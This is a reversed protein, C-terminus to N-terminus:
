GFLSSANPFTFVIMEIAVSPEICIRSSVSISIGSYRFCTISSIFHISFRSNLITFRSDHITFRSDHIFLRHFRRFPLWSCCELIEFHILDRAFKPFRHIADSSLQRIRFFKSESTLYAARCNRKGVVNCFTVASVVVQVLNLKSQLRTARQFLQNVVQVYARVLCVKLHFLNARQFFLTPSGALQDVAVNAIETLLLTCVTRRRSSFRRWDVM